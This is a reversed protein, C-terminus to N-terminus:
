NGALQPLPQLLPLSHTGTQVLLCSDPCGANAKMSPFSFGQIAWDRTQSCVHDPGTGLVQLSVSTPVCTAPLQTLGWAETQEVSSHTSTPLESTLWKPGLGWNEEAYTHPM